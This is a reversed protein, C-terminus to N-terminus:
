GLETQLPVGHATLYLPFGLAPYPLVVKLGAVPKKVPPSRRTVDSGGSRDLYVTKEPCM